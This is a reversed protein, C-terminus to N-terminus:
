QWRAVRILTFDVLDFALNRRLTHTVLPCDAITRGAQALALTKQTDLVVSFVAHSGSM